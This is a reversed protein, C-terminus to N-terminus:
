SFVPPHQISSYPITTTGPLLGPAIRVWSTGLDVADVIEVVEDVDDVELVLFSDWGFLVILQALSKPM